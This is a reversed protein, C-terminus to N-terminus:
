DGLYAIKYCMGRARACKWTVSMRNTKCTSTSRCDRAVDPFCHYCSAKRAHGARRSHHAHGDMWTLLRRASAAREWHLHIGQGRHSMWAVGLWRTCCGHLASLQAPTALGGQACPRTLALCNPSQLAPVTEALLLDAALLLDPVCEKVELSRLADIIFTTSEDTTGEDYVM